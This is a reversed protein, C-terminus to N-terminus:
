NESPEKIEPIKLDQDLQKSIRALVQAKIADKNQILTCLDFELSYSILANRKHDTAKIGEGPCVPAAGVLHTLAGALEHGESLSLRSVAIVQPSGYYSKGHGRGITLEIMPSGSYNIRQLGIVGKSNSKKGIGSSHIMIHLKHIPHTDSM